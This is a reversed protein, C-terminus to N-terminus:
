AARRDTSTAPRRPLTLVRSGNPVGRYTRLYRAVQARRAADSAAAQRPGVRFGIAAAGFCLVLASGLLAAYASGAALAYVFGGLAVFGLLLSVYALYTVSLRKVMKAM